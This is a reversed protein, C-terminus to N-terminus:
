SANCALLFGRAIICKGLLSPVRLQTFETERGDSKGSVNEQARKAVADAGPFSRSRSSLPSFTKECSSEPAPWSNGSGIDGAHSELWYRTVDKPAPGVIASMFLSPVQSKLAEEGPTTTPMKPFIDDRRVPHHSPM